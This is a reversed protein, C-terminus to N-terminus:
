RCCRVAYVFAEVLSITLLVILMVVVPNMRRMTM